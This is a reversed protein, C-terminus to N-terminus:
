NAPSDPVDSKIRHLDLALSPNKDEVVDYMEQLKSEALALRSKLCNYRFAVHKKENTDTEKHMAVSLLELMKVQVNRYFCLEAGSDGDHGGESGYASASAMSGMSTRRTAKPAGGVNASGAQSGQKDTPVAPTAGGSMRANSLLKTMYLVGINEENQELCKNFLDILMKAYEPFEIGIAQNSKMSNFKDITVEHNLLFFLDGESWLEVRITEPDEDTGKQLVRIVVSVLDGIVQYTGDEQVDPGTGGGVRGFEKQQHFSRFELCVERDYLVRFGEEEVLFEPDDDDCDADIKPYGTLKKASKRNPNKSVELKGVTPQATTNAQDTNELMKPDTM